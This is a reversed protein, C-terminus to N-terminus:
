RYLIGIDHSKRLSLSVRDHVTGGGRSRRRAPWGAQEDGDDYDDDDDEDADDMSPRALTRAVAILGGPDPVKYRRSWADERVGAAIDFSSVEASRLTSIQFILFSM